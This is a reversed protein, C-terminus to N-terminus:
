RLVKRRNNPHLRSAMVPDIAKLTEHLEENSFNKENNVYEQIEEKTMETSLVKRESSYKIKFAEEDARKQSEEIPKLREVAEVDDDDAKSLEKEKNPLVAHSKTSCSSEPDFKSEVCLKKTSRDDNVDDYDDIDRKRRSKDWLM